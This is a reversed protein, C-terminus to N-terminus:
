VKSEGLAQFGVGLVEQAPLVVVFAQPDKANVLAKLHAVQTLTLACVLVPHKRDTYMGTGSLETVGRRMESLFRQAVVRDRDTVIFALLQQRRYGQRVWARQGSLSEHSPPSSNGNIGIRITSLFLDGTLGRDSKSLPGVVVSVWQVLAGFPGPRRALITILNYYGRM